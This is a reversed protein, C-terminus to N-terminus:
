TPIKSHGWKPIGHTLVNGPVHIEYVYKVERVSFKRKLGRINEIYVHLSLLMTHVM